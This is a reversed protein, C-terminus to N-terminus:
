GGERDERVFGFGFGLLMPAKRPVEMSGACDKLVSSDKLVPLHHRHSTHNM